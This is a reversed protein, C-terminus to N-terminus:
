SSPPVAIEPVISIHTMLSNAEKCLFLLLVVVAFVAARRRQGLLRQSWGLNLYMLGFARTHLNLPLIPMAAM